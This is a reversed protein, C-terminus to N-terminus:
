EAIYRAFELSEDMRPSTKIIGLYIKGSYNRFAKTDSIDLLYDTLLVDRSLMYSRAVEDMFVIDLKGAQIGALLKMSSASAYDAHDSDNESIYLDRMLDINRNELGKSKLFDTTQFQILKESSVININAIYLFTQKSAFRGKLVAFAASFLLFGLVIPFKYFDILHRINEGLKFCKM